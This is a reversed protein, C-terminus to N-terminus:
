FGSIEKEIFYKGSPGGLPFLALKVVNQAGESPSLDGTDYTMGTRVYGPHICNVYAKDCLERALLRTYANMCIKSMKYASFPTPWGKEELNKKQKVDDLFQSLMSDLFEESIIDMDSLQKQLVPNPMMKLLGHLSSVNVIRPRYSSERLLSLLGKVVRKTGYYNIDICTTVSEDDYVSTENSTGYFLLQRMDVGAKEMVEWNMGQGAVAANNILIDLGGFMTKLWQALDSVSQSSQVDLIHFHVNGVGAEGLDKMAALGNKENRCTLVVTMGKCALQRVIELGIGRNAGTVVAVTEESWWKQDLLKRMDMGTKDMVECNMDQVAEGIIPASNIM